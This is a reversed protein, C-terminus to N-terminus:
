QAVRSWRGAVACERSYDSVAISSTATSALKTTGSGAFGGASWSLGDTVTLDGSVVGGDVVLHGASSGAGTSLTGGSVRLGGKGVGSVSSTLSLAGAQVQVTSGAQLDVVGSMTGGGSTSITGGTVHLTAGASQNFPVAIVGTNGATASMSSTATNTFTPTGGIGTILPDYYTSGADLTFSGANVVQATGAMEIRGLSWTLAGENRLVHGGALSLASAYYDSVAISSAATSALKTTGSGDFGGSTWTLSGDVTVLANGVPAAASACRM